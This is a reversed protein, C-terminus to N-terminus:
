KCPATLHENGHNFPDYQSRPTPVTRFCGGHVHVETEGGPLATEAYTDDGGLRSLASPAPGRALSQALTPRTGAILARLQDRSLALNLPASAASAVPEPASAALAIARLELVPATITRPEVSAHPISRLKTQRPPLSPAVIRPPPATWITVEVAQAGGPRDVRVRAVLMAVVMVGHALLALAFVARRRGRAAPRWREMTAGQIEQRCRVGIAACLEM